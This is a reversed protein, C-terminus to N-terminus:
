RRRRFVRGLGGLGDLCDLRCALRVEVWDLRDALRGLCWDLRRGRRRLRIDITEQLDVHPGPAVDQVRGLFDLRDTRGLDLGLRFDLRGNRDLGLRCDPRRDGRQSAVIQFSGSKGDHTGFRRGLGCGHACYLAGDLRDGLGRDAHRGSGGRDARRRAVHSWGCFL